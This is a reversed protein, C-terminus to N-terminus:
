LFNTPFVLGPVVRLHHSLSRSIVECFCQKDNLDSKDDNTHFYAKSNDFQVNFLLLFILFITM